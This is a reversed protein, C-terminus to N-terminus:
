CLWHGHPKYDRAMPREISSCFYRDGRESKCDSTAAIPEQAVPNVLMTLPVEATVTLVVADAVFADAHDVTAVIHTGLGTDQDVAYTPAALMTALALMGLVITTNRM